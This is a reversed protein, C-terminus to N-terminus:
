RPDPRRPGWDTAALQGGPGLPVRLEVVGAPRSGGAIRHLVWARPRPSPVAMASVQRVAKVTFRPKSYTLERMVSPVRGM